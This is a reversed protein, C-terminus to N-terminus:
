PLTDSKFPIPKFPPLIQPHGRGKLDDGGVDDPSASVLSENIGTRGVTAGVKIAYANVSKKRTADKGLCIPACGSQLCRTVPKTLILSTQCLYNPALNATKAWRCTM